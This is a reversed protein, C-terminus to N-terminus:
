PNAPTVPGKMMGKEKAMPTMSHMPHMADPGGSMRVMQLLKEYQTDTLIVGTKKLSEYRTVALETKLAEIEKLKDKVQDMDFNKNDVRDYLEAEAVRIKAEEMITSKKYELQLPKLKAWQEDSLGLTSKYNMPGRAPSGAKQGFAPSLPALTLLLAITMYHARM